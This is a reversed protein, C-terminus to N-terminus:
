PLLYILDVVKQDDQDLYIVLANKDKKIDDTKGDKDGASVDSNKTLTFEINKQDKLNKGTFNNKSVVTLLKIEAFGKDIKPKNERIIIVKKASITNDDKRDGLGIAFDGVRVTKVAAQTAEKQEDEDPTPIDFVTSKTTSINKAANVTSVTIVTDFINKVSGAYIASGSGQANKDYWLTLSKTFNEKSDLTAIKLDILNLGAALEIEKTFNGSNDTKAIAIDSNSLIALYSNPTTKGSVDVKASTVVSQDQPNKMQIKEMQEPSTPSTSQTTNEALVKDSKPKPQRQWLLIVGATILVLILLPALYKMYNVKIKM